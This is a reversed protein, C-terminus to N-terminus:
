RRGTARDRELRQDRRREDQDAALDAVQEAALARVHEPQEAVGDARDRHRQRLAQAAIMMKQAIM